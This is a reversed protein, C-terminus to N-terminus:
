NHLSWLKREYQTTNGTPLLQPSAVIEKWVTNYKRDTIKERSDKAGRNKNQKYQNAFAERVAKWTNSSPWGTEENM